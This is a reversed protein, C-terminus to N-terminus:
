SFMLVRILLAPNHAADAQQDQYSRLRPDLAACLMDMRSPRDQTHLRGLEADLGSVLASFAAM